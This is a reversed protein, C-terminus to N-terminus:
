RTLRRQRTGDARILYLETKGGKTSLYAIERGDPSWSGYYENSEGATIRRVNNGAKDMVFLDFIGAERDSSFLIQYIEPSWVPSIDYSPTNTLKRKNNGDSNMIHIDFFGTENSIYAIQQGDPSWIPDLTYATSHTLRTQSSGDANMVYIEPQGDRGSVFVIKEGDPSFRPHVDSARNWTLPTRNRARKDMTYIEYNGRESRLHALITNGDPSWSPLYGDRAYTKYLGRIKYVVTDPPHPPVTSERDSYFAIDRGSPSWAPYLDNAPHDTVQERNLNRLDIVYIDFNGSYSASFALKQGDPSWYPGTAIMGTPSFAQGHAHQASTGTLVVILLLPIYRPVAEM